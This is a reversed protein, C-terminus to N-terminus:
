QGVGAGHSFRHVYGGYVGIVHSGHGVHTDGVGHWQGVFSM